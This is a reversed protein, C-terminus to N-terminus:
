PTPDGPITPSREEIVLIGHSAGVAPTGDLTFLVDDLVGALGLQPPLSAPRQERFFCPWEFETRGWTPLRVRLTGVWGTWLGSGAGSMVPLTLRPGGFPVQQRRAWDADVESIHAGTDLLFSEAVFRGTTTRIFLPVRVEVSFVGFRARAVEALPVVLRRPLPM